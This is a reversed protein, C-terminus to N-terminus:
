LGLAARYEEPTIERKSIVKEPNFCVQARGGITDSSLIEIEYMKFGYQILDIWDVDFWAYFHEMSYVAHFYNNKIIFTETKSGFDYYTNPHSERDACRKKINYYANTEFVDYESHSWLGFGSTHELRYILM